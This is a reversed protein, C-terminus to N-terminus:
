PWPPPCLSLALALSFPGPGPPFPWPWSSPRAQEDWKMSDKLSTMAWGLQDINEAESWIALRVARGSMTTFSDEIGSLHGAVLAFLYSPKPFPDEFTAYHRGGDLDGATRENGNSLLLPYKAKDAEVRVSYKAMVDPRDQFYTIRRFGEAECQTVFNGSSKYLGSLQLNDQPRIAVTTELTFSAGTPPHLLTLTEKTVTYDESEVLVAGDLTIERLEVAEADGELELPAGDAVGAGRQIGLTAKVLTEEEAISFDLHVTDIVYPPAAYDKRFKEVPAAPVSEVATATMTSLSAGGRLTPFRHTTGLAPHLHLSHAAQSLLLLRGISSRGLKLM